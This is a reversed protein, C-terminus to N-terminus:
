AMDSAGAELCAKEEVFDIWRLCVGVVAPSLYTDHINRVPLRVTDIVDLRHTCWNEGVIDIELCKHFM